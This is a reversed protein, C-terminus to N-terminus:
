FDFSEIEEMCRFHKKPCKRYGIKSCPRCYLGKVEVIRSSGEGEPLYPHMGFEPVTNGWISIIDKRFAAAIHMLGTDHTIVKQSQRVLSASQNISLQGCANFVRSSDLAEVIREGKERDEPGGLLIVPHQSNKIIEIIRHEPLAKTFHKAGIVFAVYEDRFPKAFYSRDVEEDRTIFYDLGQGDNVVGLRRVAKFYRDVLHIKPLINWKFRVLLWKRLNLKPFSAISFYLLPYTSILLAKILLTRQNKHLDIIFDYKEKRLTKVLDWLDGKFVHIKDIYPNANIVPLFTEKVAYHVETDPLQHKICRLVPTTLVIDGISSFRIVLVKRLWVIKAFTRYGGTNETLKAAHNQDIGM